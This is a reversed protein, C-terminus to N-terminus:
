GVPLSLGAASTDSPHVVAIMHALQELSFPKSLIAVDDPREGIADSEAYGTIILSPLGPRLKRAADVLQTGSTHPMAYDTILLDWEGLRGNLLELADGSNAADAISRILSRTRTTSIPRVTRPRGILMNTM